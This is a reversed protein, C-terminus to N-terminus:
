RCQGLSLQLGCAVVHNPCPVPGLIGAVFGDQRAGMLLPTGQYCKIFIKPLEGHEVPGRM